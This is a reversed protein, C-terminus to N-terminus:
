PEVTVGVAGRTARWVGIYLELQTRASTPHGAPVHAAITGYGVENAEFGMRRLFRLLDDALAPQDLSITFM